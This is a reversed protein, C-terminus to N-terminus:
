KTRYGPVDTRVNASFTRMLFFSTVCSLLVCKKRLYLYLFFTNLRDAFSQLCPLNSTSLKWDIGRLWKIFIYTVSDALSSLYLPLQKSTILSRRMITFFCRCCTKQLITYKTNNRNPIGKPFPTDPKWVLHRSSLFNSVKLELRAMPRILLTNALPGPSRPEIGPRTM